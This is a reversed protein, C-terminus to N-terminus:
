RRLSAFDYRRSIPSPRLAEGTYFTLDCSTAGLAALCCCPGGESCVDCCVDQDTETMTILGEVAAGGQLLYLLLLPLSVWRAFRRISTLRVNM